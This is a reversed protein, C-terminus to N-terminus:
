PIYPDVEPAAVPGPWDVWDKKALTASRHCRKQAGREQGSMRARVGVADKAGLGDAPAETELFLSSNATALVARRLLKVTYDIVLRIDDLANM